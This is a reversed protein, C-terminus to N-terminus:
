APKKRRFIRIVEGKDVQDALWCIDPCNLSLSYGMQQHSVGMEEWDDSLNEIESLLVEIQDEPVLGKLRKELLEQLRKQPIM